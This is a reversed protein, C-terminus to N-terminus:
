GWGGGKTQVIEKRQAAEGGGGEKQAGQGWGGRDHFGEGGEDGGREASREELGEGVARDAIAEFEDGFAVLFTGDQLDGLAGVGKAGIKEVIGAFGWPGDFDLGGERSIKDFEAGADGGIGAEGIALLVHGGGGVRGEGGGHSAEGAGEKVLNGPVREAAGGEFQDFADAEGADASDQSGVEGGVGDLGGAGVPLGGTERADRGVENQAIEALEFFNRVITGGADGEDDGVRGQAFTDGDGVEAGKEFLKEGDGGERKTGAASHDPDIGELEFKGGGGKAQFKLLRDVEAAEPASEFEEAFALEGKGGVKEGQSFEGHVGADDVEGAVM